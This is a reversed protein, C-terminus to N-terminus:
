QRCHVSPASSSLTRVTRRKLWITYVIVTFSFVTFALLAAAAGNVALSV